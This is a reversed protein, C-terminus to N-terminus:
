RSVHVQVVLNRRDARRVIRDNRVLMWARLTQRERDYSVVRGTCEDGRRVADLESRNREHLLVAPHHRRAVDIRGSYRRRPNAVASM